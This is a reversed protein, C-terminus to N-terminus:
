KRLAKRIGNNNKKISVTNKRKTTKNKLLNEIQRIFKPDLPQQLRHLHRELDVTQLRLTIPVRNRM